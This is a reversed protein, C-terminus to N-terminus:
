DIRELPFEISGFGWEQSRVCGGMELPPRVVEFFLCNEARDLYEITNKDAIIQGKQLLICRPCLSQITSMNHSVFLVTRGSQGVAEIKGLCKKQFQSDGVAVVEDVILAWFDESASKERKVKLNKITGISRRIGNSITDRLTTYRELQQRDLFYQKGLNEVRIIIESM